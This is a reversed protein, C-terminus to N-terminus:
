QEADRRKGLSESCHDRTASKEIWVKYGYYNRIRAFKKNFLDQNKFQFNYFGM